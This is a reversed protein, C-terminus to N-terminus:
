IARMDRQIKATKNAIRDLKARLIGGLKCNSQSTKAPNKLNYMPTMSAGVRRPQGTGLQPSGDHRNGAAGLALGKLQLFGLEGAEVLCYRSTCYALQPVGPRRPRPGVGCRAPELLFGFRLLQFLLDLCDRAADVMDAPDHARQHALVRVSRPIQRGGRHTDAGRIIPGGLEM